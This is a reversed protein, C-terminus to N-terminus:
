VGAVVSIRETAPSHAELFAVADAAVREGPVIVPIGPPYPCIAEACIRGVAARLPVRECPALAARRPPLV